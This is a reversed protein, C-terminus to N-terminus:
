MRLLSKIVCTRAVVMDTSGGLGAARRDLHGLPKAIFRRTQVSVYHRCYVLGRFGTMEPVATGTAFTDYLRCGASGVRLGTWWSRCSAFTICWCHPEKPSKKDIM